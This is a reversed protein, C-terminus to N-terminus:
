RGELMAQALRRIRRWVVLPLGHGGDFPLWDVEAGGAHLFARLALAAEHSVNRDAEGHAQLVRLGQLRHGLPQWEDFAIRSASLLALAQPRCVGHLVADCALMGGQSFGGLLLPLGPHRRQLEDCVAALQARAAERGPPHTDHLDRPGARLAAERLRRDVPWWTWGGEDLPIAAQPFYCATAEGLVSAFPLLDQAQMGYGHLLVLVLRPQPALACSVTSGAITTM